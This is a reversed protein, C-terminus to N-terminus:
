ASRLRARLADRDGGDQVWRVVPEFAKRTAADRAAYARELVAVYLKEKSGFFYSPTARSLGALASIEALSAADFGRESFLSEAADLIAGRSREADRAKDPPPQSDRRDHSM